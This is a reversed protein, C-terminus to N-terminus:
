VGSLYHQGNRDIALMPKKGRAVARTLAAHSAITEGGPVGLLDGPEIGLGALHGPAVVLFRERSAALRQMQAETLEPYLQQLSELRAVLNRSSAVPVEVILTRRRPTRLTPAFSEVARALAEEIAAMPGQPEGDPGVEPLNPDGSDVAEVTGIVTPAGIHRVDIRATYDVVLRKTAQFGSIPAAGGVLRKGTSVAITFSLAHNPDEGLMKLMQQLYADDQGQLEEALVARGGTVELLSDGTRRQIRRQDGLGGWDISTPMTVITTVFPALTEAEPRLAVSSSCGIAAVTAALSALLSIAIKQRRAAV